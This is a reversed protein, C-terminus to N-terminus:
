VYNNLVFYIIWNLQQAITDRGPRLASICGSASTIHATMQKGTINVNM